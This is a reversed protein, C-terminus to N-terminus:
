PAACDPYFTNAVIKAAQSRTVNNAARFYPRRTAGCPEGPGGCEYGGIVGRSALREIWTYFTSNQPIDEFTQGGTEGNLNAANAVIKAMQGRTANALPRYYPRRSQGCPEGPGGCEYGSIIGRSAVRQIYVYFTYEAPVDEFTQVTHAESFGAANSVVKAIQGRTINNGPRFTGDDYGGLVGGCALCRIYGYFASPPQVDVFEIRCPAVTPSPAVATATATPASLTSTSTPTATSMTTPTSTHAGLTPSPATSTPTVSNTPTPTPTVINSCTTDTAISLTYGACGTNPSAEHVVVYFYQGRFAVFSYQASGNILTAASGAYNACINDPNFNGAYAVSYIAGACGSANVTVTVCQSSFSGFPFYYSHARYHRPDTDAVGPCPPSWQCGSGVGTQNLMGAQVPDSASISGQAVLCVQPTRTATATSMGTTTPTPTYTTAVTPTLEACPATYHETLTKFTPNGSHYTGVSWIDNSSLPALSKLQPAISQPNGVTANTWSSGDWHAALPWGQSSTSYSGVAWVDSYSFALVDNFFSNPAGLNPVPAIEWNTGGWRLALMQRPTSVSCNGTCTYGVAWAAGDPAASVGTLFNQVGPVNPTSVVSWTTGDWRMALTRSNLADLTYNGVAWLNGQADASVSSLFSDLGMNPSPVHAWATGNWRLVLTRARESGSWSYGVAWVDNAALAIVSRLENKFTGPSPSDVRTWTSGNWHLVFTQSLGGTTSPNYTGVAWVDNAAVAAVDLLDNIDNSPSPSSVVSWAAGDWHEILSIQGAVNSGRGGVAWVDNQSVVAVGNLSNYASVHVSPVLLWSCVPPETKARATPVSLLAQAVMAAVLAPMLFLGALLLWRLRPLSPDYRFTL